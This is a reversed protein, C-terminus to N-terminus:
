TNKGVVDLMYEARHEPLHYKRKVRLTVVNEGGLIGSLGTFAIDEPYDSRQSSIFLVSEIKSM